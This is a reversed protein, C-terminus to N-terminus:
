IGYGSLGWFGIGWLGGLKGPGWGVYMGVM